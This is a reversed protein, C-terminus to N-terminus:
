SHNRPMFLTERFVSRFNPTIRKIKQFLRKAVNIECDQKSVSETENEIFETGLSVVVHDSLVIKAELIKHYYMKVM